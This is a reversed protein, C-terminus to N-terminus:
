LPYERNLDNQPVSFRQLTHRSILCPYVVLCWGSIYDHRQLGKKYVVRLMFKENRVNQHNWRVLLGSMLIYMVFIIIVFDSWSDRFIKSTWGCYITNQNWKQSVVRNYLRTWKAVFRMVMPNISTKFLTEVIRLIVTKRITICGQM